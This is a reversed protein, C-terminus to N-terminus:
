SREQVGRVAGDVMAHVAKLTLGGPDKEHPYSAIGLHEFLSTLLPYNPRNFVMFGTDIRLTGWEDEVLATNTHGGCRQDAEFLTVEAQERLLWASIAGSIGSGVVAIRRNKNM